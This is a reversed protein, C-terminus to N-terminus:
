TATEGDMIFRIDAGAPSKADPQEPLTTAKMIGEELRMHNFCRANKRLRSIQSAIRTDTEPPYSGVYNYAAYVTGKRSVVRNVQKVLSALFTLNLRINPLEM